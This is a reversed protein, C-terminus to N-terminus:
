RTNGTQRDKEKGGEFEGGEYNGRREGRMTGM